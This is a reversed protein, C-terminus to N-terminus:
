SLAICVFYVLVAPGMIVAVDAVAAKWASLGQMGIWDLLAQRAGFGSTVWFLVVGTVVWNQTRFFGFWAAAADDKAAALAKRRMWWTVLIPLLVFGALIALARNLDSRRFGYALHFPPVKGNEPLSIEYVLTNSDSLPTQIQKATPYDHFQSQPINVYLTIQDVGMRRLESVVPSYDFDGELVGGQRALVRQCNGTLERQSYEEIQKQYRERQAPSWNKPLSAQPYGAPHTFASPQCHLSQALLEGLQDSSESGDQLYLRANVDGQQDFNLWLQAISGSAFDTSDDDDADQALACAVCLIMLCPLLRRWSQM